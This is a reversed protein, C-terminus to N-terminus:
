SGGRKTILAKFRDLPSSVTKTFSGVASEKTPNQIRHRLALAEPNEPDLLLVRRIKDLAKETEQGRRHFEALALLADPFDEEIKLAQELLEPIRQQNEKSPPMVMIAKAMWVLYAPESNDMRFATEFNALAGKPDPQNLLIQGQKHLDWAEFIEVLRADLSPTDIELVKNYKIRTQKDLLQEKIQNLMGHIEALINEGKATILGSYKTAIWKRRTRLYAMYITSIRADVNIGLVQYYNKEKFDVLTQCLEEEIPNLDKTLDSDFDLTLEIVPEAITAVGVPAQDYPLSVEPLASSADPAAETPESVPPEEKVVSVLGAVHLSFLFRASSEQSYINDDAMTLHGAFMESALQSHGFQLQANRLMAFAESRIVLKGGNKLKCTAELIEKTPVKSVAQMLLLDTDIRPNIPEGDLKAKPIFELSSYAKPMMLAVVSRSYSSKLQKVDLELQPAAKTLDEFSRIEELKEPDYLLKSRTLYAQVSWDEVDTSFDGLHGNYVLMKTKGDESTLVLLGTLEKQELSKLVRYFGWPPVTM